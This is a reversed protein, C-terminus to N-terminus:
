IKAGRRFRAGLVFKTIAGLLGRPPPAEALPVVVCAKGAITGMQSILSAFASMDLLTSTPLM